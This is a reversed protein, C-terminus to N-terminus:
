EVLSYASKKIFQTSKKPKNLLLKSSLEELAEPTKVKSVNSAGNEIDNLRLQSLKDVLQPNSPKEKFCGFCKFISSM